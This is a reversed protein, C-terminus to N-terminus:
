FSNQTGNWFHVLCHPLYVSAHLYPHEQLYGFQIFHLM